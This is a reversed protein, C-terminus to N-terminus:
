RQSLRLPAGIEPEGQFETWLSESNEIGKRIVVAALRM